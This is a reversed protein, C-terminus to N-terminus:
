EDEEITKNKKRQSADFFFIRKLRGIGQKLSNRCYANRAKKFKNTSTM